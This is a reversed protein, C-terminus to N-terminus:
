YVAPVVFHDPILTLSQRSGSMAPTSLRVELQVPWRNPHTKLFNLVAFRFTEIQLDEGPALAPIPVTQQLVTEWRATEELHDYDTMQLASHVRLDGVKARLTVSLPVNLLAQGTKNYLHAKGTFVWPSPGGHYRWVKFPANIGAQRYATDALSIAQDISLEGRNESQWRTKLDLFRAKEDPKYYFNISEVQIASRSSAAHTALLTLGESLTLLVLTLIIFVVRKM